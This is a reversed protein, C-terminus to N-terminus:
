APDHEALLSQCAAALMAKGKANAGLARAMQLAGVLTAAIVMAQEKAQPDPLLHRVTEVLSHLRQLAVDRLEPSQRPVEALLAAVPCGSEADILHTESLYGEVLARLPSAGRTRLKEARQTLGESSDEGARAMAEALMAERSGFHAYFGGHTLGAEKMVDAVGVGSFGSRRIAHAAADVIRQHSLEKKTATPEM